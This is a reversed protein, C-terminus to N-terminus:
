VNKFNLTFDTGVLGKCTSALWNRITWTLSYCCSSLSALMTYAYILFWCNHHCITKLLNYQTVSAVSSAALHRWCQHPVSVDKPNSFCWIYVTAIWLHAGCDTLMDSYSSNFVDMIVNISWSHPAGCALPFSICKPEETPSVSCTSYNEEKKGQTKKPRWDSRQKSLCLTNKAGVGLNLIWDNKHFTQRARVGIKEWM